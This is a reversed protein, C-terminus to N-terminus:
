CRQSFIAGPAEAGGITSAHGSDAGGFRLVLGFNSLALLQIVENDCAFRKLGQSELTTSVTM